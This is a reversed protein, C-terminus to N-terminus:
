ETRNGVLRQLGQKAMTSYQEEDSAAAKEYWYAARGYDRKVGIGTEHMLGLQLQAKPDGQEAGKTLWKVSEEFDRPIGFGTMYLIGLNTQARPHGAEAAKRTWSLAQDYDQKVGQGAAYMLGLQTQAEVLGAEAAKQYWAAAEKYDASQYATEGQHYWDQQTTKTACASLSGLAFVAALIAPIFTTRTHRNFM